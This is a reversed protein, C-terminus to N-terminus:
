IEIYAFGSENDLLLKCYNKGRMSAYILYVMSFPILYYTRETRSKM